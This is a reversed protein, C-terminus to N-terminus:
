PEATGDGRLGWLVLLTVLILAAGGSRLGFVIATEQAPSGAAGGSAMPLLARGAGWSAGLVNAIFPAACGYIALGVAVRTAARSLRLRPWVLGLLTLFLGQTVGLLHASLGLRPVTFAPVALGVLLGALFVVIGAQLLRHGQRRRDPTAVLM